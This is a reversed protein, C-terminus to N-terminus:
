VFSLDLEHGNTNMRPEMRKEDNHTLRRSM